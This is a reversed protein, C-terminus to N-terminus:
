GQGGGFGRPGFRFSKVMVPSGRVGFLSLVGSVLMYLVAIVALVAVVSLIFVGAFAAAALGLAGFIIASVLGRRPKSRYTYVRGDTEASSNFAPRGGSDVIEAEIAESTHSPDAECVSVIRCDDKSMYIFSILIDRRPPSFPATKCILTM